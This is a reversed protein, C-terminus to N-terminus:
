GIGDAADRDDTMRRPYGTFDPAQVKGSRFIPRATRQRNFANTSGKCKKQEGILVM